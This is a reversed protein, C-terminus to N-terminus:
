ATVEAFRDAVWAAVATSVGSTHTRHEFWRWSGSANVELFVLETGTDLLDVAAIQLGLGAALALVRAAVDDPLETPEVAITEPARAAADLAPKRLAYAICREGVVFVRLEREHEIPEQALLPATQAPLSAFAARSM